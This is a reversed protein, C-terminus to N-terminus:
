GTGGWVVTGGELGWFDGEAWSCAWVTGGWGVTGGGRRRLYVVEWEVLVMDVLIVGLLHGLLGKSVLGLKFGLHLIESSLKSLKHLFPLLM